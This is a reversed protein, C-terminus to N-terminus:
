SASGKALTVLLDPAGFGGAKTLIPLPLTDGAILRGLALGSAPAGDLDLRRAGLARMVAVATEGGTLVLLSPTAETLLARVLAALRGAVLARDEELVDSSAVFAPRGTSIADVVRGLDPERGGTLRAGVMGSAELAQIQARTVPHRSGAVILCAGPPPLLPAPAAHGSAVAAARALGASGALFIGPLGLAARALADLDEDTEADAAILGRRDRLARELEEHSGRVEKLPVLSV